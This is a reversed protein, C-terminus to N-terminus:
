RLPLGLKKLLVMINMCCRSKLTMRRCSDFYWVVTHM